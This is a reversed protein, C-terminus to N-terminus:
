RRGYLEAEMEAAAFQVAPDTPDGLLIALAGARAPRAPAGPGLVLVVRDGRALASRAEEPDDTM